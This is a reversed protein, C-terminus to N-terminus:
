PRVLDPAHERALALLQDKLPDALRAVDHV